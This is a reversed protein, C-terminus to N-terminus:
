ETNHKTKVRLSTGSFNMKFSLPYLHNIHQIEVSPLLKAKDLPKKHKNFWISQAGCHQSGYVDAILDDGIHLIESVDINLRKAAEIFLDGAPKAKYGQGAMLIFSFKDTINIRKADVNGNTIAIVPYNKALHRLLKLSDPPVVFNSRLRLFVKFADQAYEIAKYECIGYIIMIRKLIEIRWLSVDHILEPHENKVTIKYLKWQHPTLELLESYTKNLYIIFNAEAKDMVIQNDYLTDDLDFSIAKFPKLPRYFRLKKGM